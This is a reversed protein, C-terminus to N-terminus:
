WHMDKSTIQLVELKAQTSRRFACDHAMAPWGAAVPFATAGARNL